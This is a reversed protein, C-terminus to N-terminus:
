SRDKTGVEEDKEINGRNKIRDLVDKFARGYVSTATETSMSSDYEIIDDGTLTALLSIEDKGFGVVLYKDVGARIIAITRNNGLRISEKIELNQRITRTKEYGAIWRTTFYCLVLVFIFIVSVTIFEFISNYAGGTLLISNM